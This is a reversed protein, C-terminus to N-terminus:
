GLGFIPMSGGGGSRFRPSPYLPKYALVSTYTLLAEESRGLVLGTVVGYIPRALSSLASQKCSPFTAKSYHDYKCTM